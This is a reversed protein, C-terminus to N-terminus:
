YFALADIAHQDRCLTEEGLSAIAEQESALEFAEDPSVPSIQNAPNALWDPHPPRRGRPSNAPFDPEARQDDRNLQPNHPIHVSDILPSRSIQTQAFPVLSNM